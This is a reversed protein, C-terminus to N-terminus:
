RDIITNGMAPGSSRVNFAIVAFVIACKLRSGSADGRTM